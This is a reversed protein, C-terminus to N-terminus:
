QFSIVSFAGFSDSPILRLSIAVFICNVKKISVSSIVVFNMLSVIKFALFRKREKRYVAMDGRPYQLCTYM